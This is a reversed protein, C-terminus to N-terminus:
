AQWVAYAGGPWCRAASDTLKDSRVNGNHKPTFTNRFQICYPLDLPEPRYSPLKHQPLRLVGDLDFMQFIRNLEAESAESLEKVETSAKLRELAPVWEVIAIVNKLRRLSRLSWALNYYNRSALMFNPFPLRNTAGKWTKVSFESCPYFGQKKTEPGLALDCLKFPQIEEDERSYDQKAAAAEVRSEEKQVEM